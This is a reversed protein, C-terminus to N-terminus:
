ARVIADGFGGDRRDAALKGRTHLGGGLLATDADPEKGGAEDAIERAARRLPIPALQDLRDAAMIEGNEGSKLHDQGLGVATTARRVVRHPGLGKAKGGCGSGQVEARESAFDGPQPPVWPEKTWGLAIPHLPEIGWGGHKAHDGKGPEPFSPRLKGDERCRPLVM